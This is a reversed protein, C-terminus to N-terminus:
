TSTMMLDAMVELNLKINDEEAKNYKDALLSYIAPNNILEPNIDNIAFNAPNLDLLLALGGAFPEYYTNFEKPLRDRIKDLLQQKGGAWKIIPKM